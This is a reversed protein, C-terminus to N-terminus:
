VTALTGGLQCTGYFAILAADRIGKQLEKNGELQVAPFLQRFRNEANVKPDKAKKLGHFM